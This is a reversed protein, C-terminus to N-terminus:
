RRGTSKQQQLRLIDQNEKETLLYERLRTLVRRAQVRYNTEKHTKACETFQKIFRKLDKETFCGYPITHQKLYEFTSFFENLEELEPRIPKKKLTVGNYTYQPHALAIELFQAQNEAKCVKGLPQEKVTNTDLWFKVKDPDLM